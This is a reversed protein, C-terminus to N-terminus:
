SVRSPDVSNSSTPAAHTTYVIFNLDGRREDLVRWSHCWKESKASNAISMTVLDSILSISSNGGKGPRAKQIQKLEAERARRGIIIRGDFVIESAFCRDSRELTTRSGHIDDDVILEGEPEPYCEAAEGCLHQRDECVQPATGVLEEGGGFECSGEGRVRLEKAVDM